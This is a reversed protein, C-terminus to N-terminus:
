IDIGNCNPVGPIWMKGFYTQKIARGAHYINVFFLVGIVHAHGGGSKLPGCSHCTDNTRGFAVHNGKLMLNIM